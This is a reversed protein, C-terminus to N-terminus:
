SDDPTFTLHSLTMGLTQYKTDNNFTPIKSVLNFFSNDYKNLDNTDKNSLYTFALVMQIINIKVMLLMM